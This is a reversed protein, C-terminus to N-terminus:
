STSEAFYSPTKGYNELFGKWRSYQLWHLYLVFHTGTSKEEKQFSCHRFSTTIKQTHRPYKFTCYIIQRDTVRGAISWIVKKAVTEEKM